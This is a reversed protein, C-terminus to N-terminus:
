PSPYGTPGRPFARSTRLFHSLYHSTSRGYHVASAARRARSDTASGYRLPRSNHSITEALPYSPQREIGLKTPTPSRGGLSPLHYPADLPRQPYDSQHDHPTKYGYHDRICSYSSIEEWTPSLLHAPAFRAGSCHMLIPPFPLLIQGGCAPSLLHAPARFSTISVTSLPPSARWRAPRCGAPSLLCSPPHVRWSRDLHCDM